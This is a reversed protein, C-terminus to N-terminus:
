VNCAIICHLPQDLMFSRREARASASATFAQGASSMRAVFEVPPFEVIEPVEGTTTQVGVNHYLMKHNKKYALHGMRRDETKLDELSIEAIITCAVNDM